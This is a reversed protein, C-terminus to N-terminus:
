RAADREAIEVERGRRAARVDDSAEVDGGGGIPIIQDGIPRRQLHRVGGRRTKSFVTHTRQRGVAAREAAATETRPPSWAIPHDTGFLAKRSSMTVPSTQPARRGDDDGRRLLAVMHGGSLTTGTTKKKPTTAGVPSWCRRAGESCRRAGVAVLHVAVPQVERAAFASQERAVRGADVWRSSWPAFLTEPRLLPSRTDTAM